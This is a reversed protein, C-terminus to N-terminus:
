TCRTDERSPVRTPTARSVVYYGAATYGAATTAQSDAGVRGGATKAADAKKAEGAKKAARKAGRTAEAKGAIVAKRDVFVWSKCPKDQLELNGEQSAVWGITRRHEYGAYWEPRFESCAHVQYGAAKAIEAIGWVDYPLGTKLTVIVQGLEPVVPGAPTYQLGQLPSSLLPRVSSFFGALLRQNTLNNLTQDKIGAGAHPFNFCVKSFKTAGRLAKCTELKTADVGYLVTGGLDEVASTKAGADPYKRSVEAESDFATATVMEATGLRAALAASFSFNGEGVLLIVDESSFPFFGAAAGAAAEAAAAPAAGAAAAGDGSKKVKKKKKQVGPAPKLSSPAAVPALGRGFKKDTQAKKHTWKAKAEKGALGLTLRRGKKSM